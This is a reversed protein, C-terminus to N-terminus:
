PFRPKCTHSSCPNYTAQFSVSTCTNIASPNPPPIACTNFTPPKRRSPNFFTGLPQHRTALLLDSFFSFPLECDVTSLKCDVASSSSPAGTVCLDCLPLPSHSTALPSCYFAASLPNVMEVPDPYVGLPSSPLVSLSCLYWRGGQKQTHLPLLPTVPSHSADLPFLPTLPRLLSPSAFLSPTSRPTQTGSSTVPRDSIAYACRGRLM